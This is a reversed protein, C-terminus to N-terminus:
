LYFKSKPKAKSKSKPKDKAQKKKVPKDKKADTKAEVTTTDDKVQNTEGKDNEKESEQEEDTDENDNNDTEYGEDEDEELEDEDKEEDVADNSECKEKEKEKNDIVTEVVKDRKKEPSGKTREGNVSVSSTKELAETVAMVASGIEEIEEDSCIVPKNLRRKEIGNDLSQKSVHKRMNRNEKKNQSCLSKPPEILDENRPEKVTSFSEGSNCQTRKIGKANSLYQRIDM